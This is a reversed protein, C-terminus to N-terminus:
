SRKQMLVWFGYAGIITGFPINLLHLGTAIWTWAIPWNKQKWLGYGAIMSPVPYAILAVLLLSLLFSQFPDHHTGPDFSWLVGIYGIAAVALLALL